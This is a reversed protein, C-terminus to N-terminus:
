FKVPENQRHIELGKLIQMFFDREIDYDVAQLKYRRWKGSPPSDLPREEFRGRVEVGTLHALPKLRIKLRYRRTYIQSAVAKLIGRSRKVRDQIWRSEIENKQPDIKKMGYPKLTEQVAQWVEEVPASIEDSYARLPNEMGFLAAFIFPLIKWIKKRM